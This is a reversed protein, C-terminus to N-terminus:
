RKLLPLQIVFTTGEGLRSDFYLKGQHYKTIIQYSISLGIGTGQGIPKTTFFPDFIRPKVEDSIGIGNDQVSITIGDEQYKTTITIVGKYNKSENKQRQEIAQISNTLLNMFVQNLLGIYCEFHPLNGYNKIVTIEPNGARGNLQNQLIILTNDINEHLDVAKLESEDLRSFTRLSKVISQIRSAGIRMSEITRPLDEILFELDREEVLNSIEPTPQPYTAQYLQIIELLSNAYKSVFELNGYIFSIPNNIEHAIGAVLQGLSSMKEAQILQLQAEQLERYAIQLKESRQQATQYLHAQQIAIAIQLGLSELLEIEDRQWGVHSNVRGMELCTIQEAAHIPVMLYLNVGMSNCFEYIGQDYEEELNQINFTFIQNSLLAQHYKPFQTADYIGLWSAVNARRKEQLVETYCGGNEEWYRTFVCIDLNLEEFIAEVATQIVQRLDLSQRIELSMSNLLQTRSLLAELRAETEVRETIDRAAAYILEGQPVAIWEIYHYCGSKSRYRNTFKNVIQGEKLISFTALTAPIDEPHVFDLFIKGELEALSYELVESWGRSLRRFYGKTDAICLLDLSINFFHELELEAIRRETIDMVVGFMRVVQKDQFELEIRCNLYRVAGDKRLISFDFNQSIGQKAAAVRELFRERDEPHVKLVLEEFTPEGQELPLGFIRFVQESWTIKQTALDFAWYGLNAVEQAKQLQCNLQKLQIEAQKRAHILTSVGLCFIEGNDEFPSLNASHWYYNGDAHLVRYEYHQVKKGALVAQFVAICVPLDEPHLFPTFSTHLLESRPYGMITEFMPSLFTFTGDPAIIFVMENLNDILRRLKIESQYQAQKPPTVNELYGYWIVGGDPLCEPTGHISVWLCYGDTHYVRHTSHWPTQYIASEQLSQLVTPYDEPHIAAFLPTADNEVDELHLGYINWLNESAYPLSFNGDPHQRLEYVVGPIHRLLKTLPNQELNHTKLKTM